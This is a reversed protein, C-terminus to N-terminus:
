QQGALRTHMLVRPKFMGILPREVFHYFAIGIVGILAMSFLVFLGAPADAWGAHVFLKACFGPVFFHTLYISYSADGLGVLLKPFKWVKELLVFGLVLLAAPTGIAAVRYAEVVYRPSQEEGPVDIIWYRL